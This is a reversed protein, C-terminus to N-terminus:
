GLRWTGDKQREMWAFTFMPWEIRAQDFALRSRQLSCLRYTGKVEFVTLATPDDQRIGVFDPTYRHGNALILAMCNWRVERYLGTRLLFERAASETKTPQRPKRSKNPAQAPIQGAIINTFAPGYGPACIAVRNPPPPPNLLHANAALVAAGLKHLPIPKM